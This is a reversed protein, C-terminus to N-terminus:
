LAGCGTASQVATDASWGGGSTDRASGESLSYAAESCPVAEVYAAHTEPLTVEGSFAHFRRGPPVRTAGATPAAGEEYDQLTVGFAQEMAQVTGRLVLTRRALSSAAEDVDLGQQQAFSRLADFNAPDAAYQAAFEEHSLIRGGLAALDLPNKRQVIVSVSIIQQSDTAQVATANTPDARKSHPLSVRKQTPSSM